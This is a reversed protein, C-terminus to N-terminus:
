NVLKLPVVVPAKRGIRVIQSKRELFGPALHAYKQTMMPTSHGLLGQLEALSGGNMVFHSAFTHRLDHIRIRRLGAKLCVRKHTQRIVHALSSEGSFRHILFDNPGSFKTTRRHESLADLLEDNIGLWRDVKGKTRNEIKSSRYEKIKCIHIRRNVLDVDFNKLALLEGIRAGTNLALIAFVYFVQSENLAADLYRECEEISHWYDNADRSEKWISVKAVPSIQVMDERIADNYLKSLVARVRNRTAPALGHKTVLSDCFIELERSSIAQLNRDGFEPLIWKSLRDEDSSWSSYPKGQQKRKLLWAEAFDRLRMDTMSQPLMMGSELLEKERKKEAYWREADVIRTFRKTLRKGNIRIEKKYSPTGDHRYHAKKKM